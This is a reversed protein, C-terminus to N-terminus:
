HSMGVARALTQKELYLPSTTSVKLEEARSGECRKPRSFPRSLPRMRINATNQSGIVWTASSIGAAFGM